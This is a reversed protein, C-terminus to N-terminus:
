KWMITPIPRSTSLAPIPRLTIMKGEELLKKSNITNDQGLMYLDRDITSRGDLVAQEEATVEKLRRIIEQNM